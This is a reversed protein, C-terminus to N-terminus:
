SGIGSSFNQELRKETGNPRLNSETGVFSILSRVPACEHSLNVVRGPDAPLGLRSEGIGHSGGPGSPGEQYGTSRTEAECQWRLETCDTQQALSAADRTAIDMLVERGLGKARAALGCRQDDNFRLRRHGLQERLVRNKV